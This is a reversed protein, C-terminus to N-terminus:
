LYEAFQHFPPMVEEDKFPEREAKCHKRAECGDEFGAGGQAGGM